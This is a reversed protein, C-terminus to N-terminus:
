LKLEFTCGLVPKCNDPNMVMDQVDTVSTISASCNGGLPFKITDKWTLKEKLAVRCNYDLAGFKFAGGYRLYLPMGMLGPKANNLDYQAEMSHKSGGESKFWTGLGFLKTFANGRVYYNGNDGIMAAHCWVDKVSNNKDMHMRWGLHYDDMVNNQHYEVNHESKSNFGVRFDM